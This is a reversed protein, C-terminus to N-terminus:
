RYTYDFSLPFFFSAGINLLVFNQVDSNEQLNVTQTDLYMYDRVEVRATLWDFLAFRQGIGVNLAPLYDGGDGASAVGAGLTTYLDFHAIYTDFLSVKGNIPIWHLDVHAFMTPHEFSAMVSTEKYRVVDITSLAARAYFYDFGVGFGFADHPYFAFSGGLAFHQFYPDNVSTAAMAGLEIRHRKLIRKRPVAKIRDLVNAQSGPQNSSGPAERLVVPAKQRHETEGSPQDSQTQDSAPHLDTPSDPAADTPAPATPAPAVTEATGIDGLLDDDEARVTVPLSFM